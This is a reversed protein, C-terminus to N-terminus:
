QGFLRVHLKQRLTVNGHLLVSNFGNRELERLSARIRKQERRYGFARIFAEIM